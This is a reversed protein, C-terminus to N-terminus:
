WSFGSTAPISMMFSGLRARTPQRTRVGVQPLPSLVSTAAMYVFTPFRMWSILGSGSIM